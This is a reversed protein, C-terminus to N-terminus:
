HMIMVPTESVRGNMEVFCEYMGDVAAEPNWSFSHKGSALEGDFLQAVEEGLMNVITVRAVGNEPTFFQITTSKPAPNPYASLSLKQKPPSAVSSIGFDSLPRRWICQGGDHLSGTGVFIYNNNAALSQINMNENLNFGSNQWSNGNDSTLFLGCNYYSYNTGAFINHGAVISCTISNIYGLGNSVDQWNNGSDFSVFVGAGGAFLTSDSQTLSYIGIDYPGTRIWVQGSDTSRYVGSGSSGMIFVTGMKAFSTVAYSQPNINTWSNGYDASYYLNDSRYDDVYEAVAFLDSDSTVVSAIYNSNHSNLCQPKWSKGQDTSEYISDFTGGAILLSGMVALSTVNSSLETLKWSIGNDTSCFVGRSCGALLVSDMTALAPVIDKVTLSPCVASWTKGDISMFIGVDQTAAFSKNGLHTFSAVSSNPFSSDQVWSLGNNSSLYLGYRVTGLFLETDIKTFCSGNSMTYNGLGQNSSTWTKGSNTSRFVGGPTSALWYPGQLWIAQLSPKHPDGSIGSDISVWSSGFDQSLFLGSDTGAYISDGSVYLCQIKSNALGSSIWKKGEDAILELGNSTGVILDSDTAALCTVNTLGISTWTLGENRSLFVANNSSGAYIDNGISTLSNVDTGDPITDTSNVWSVGNDTSRLIGNQTGVILVTDFSLISEASCYNTQVWQAFIPSHSAVLLILIALSKKM